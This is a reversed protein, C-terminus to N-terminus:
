EQINCLHMQRDLPGTKHFASGSFILFHSDSLPKLCHIKKCMTSHNILVINKNYPTDLSFECGTDVLPTVNQGRHIHEFTSM